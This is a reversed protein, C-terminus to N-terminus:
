CAIRSKRPLPSYQAKIALPLMSALSRPVSAGIFFERGKQIFYMNRYETVRYPTPQLAERLIDLPERNLARITVTLTDAEGPMCFIRSGTQQEILEFLRTIPQRELDVTLRQQAVLPAVSLFAIALIYIIQKM